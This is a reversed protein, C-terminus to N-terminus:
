VLAEAPHRGGGFWGEAQEAIPRCLARELAQKLAAGAAPTARDKARWAIVGDPRILTAGGDGVGYAESWRGAIDALEAGLVHAALPLRADRALARATEAWGMGEPGTLLVFGRGFLDLTSFRRSGSGLELHPARSGPRGSPQFPNEAPAGDDEPELSLAASRYLYGTAVAMYDSMPGEALERRDPRLREVYNATQRAVTLEAVPKRETEYSALLEQGAEGRIVMALKWALDGADQMATQGGLGGTPPMTHAADGALFIRGDTFRDAVLSSMEWSQVNVIDVAVSPLGLAARVLGLCREPPFDELTQQRPDYELAVMGRRPDDTSLFAGVFGSNRLFCLLFGCGNVIEPLDAEFLISVYNALTRHGHRGIGLATRVPSRSGDAAVLYNASVDSEEGTRRDRLLARIGESTQTFGVFETSFAITAGLAEARRHLIQEVQEQGLNPALAPSLKSLDFSDPRYLSHTPAGDVAVADESRPRVAAIVSEAIVIHFDKSEPRAAAQLESELGHVVRLVEMSRTNIGRARPQKLPDDHREVLLCPIGRWALMVASTLGALGAGVILVPTHIRRM